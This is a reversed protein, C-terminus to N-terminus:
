NITSVGLRKSSQLKSHLAIVATVFKLKEILNITSDIESPAPNSQIVKRVNSNITGEAKTSKSESPTRRFIITTDHLELINRIM